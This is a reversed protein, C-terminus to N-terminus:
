TEEILQSIESSERFKVRMKALSPRGDSFQSIFEEAISELVCRFSFGKWQFLLIPPAHVNRDVSMLDSIEKMGERVDTSTKREDFYFVMSLLRPNAAVFQLPTGDLGPIKVETYDNKQTLKLTRLIFKAKVTRTDAPVVILIEAEALRPPFLLDICRM